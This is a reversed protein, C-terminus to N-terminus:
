LSQVKWRFGKQDTKALMKSRKGDVKLVRFLAILTKLSATHLSKPFPAVYTWLGILTRRALRHSGAAFFASTVTDIAAVDPRIGTAIMDQFTRMAEMPDGQRAYGVILMTYMVRNPRVRAKWAANMVGKAAGFDGAAVYGEMLAAYHYRNPHMGRDLMTQFVDKAAHMDLKTVGEHRIRLTLMARNARIGRQSLSQIMPRVSDTISPPPHIGATPDFPEGMKVSRDAHDRGNPVLRAAGRWGSEMAAHNEERLIARYIIELQGLSPRSIAFLMNRLTRILVAPHAGVSRDLYRLLLEATHDDPQVSCARMLQLIMRATKLGRLRLVGHLCANIIETTPKAQIAAIHPEESEDPKLGFRHGLRALRAQAPVNGECFRTVMRLAAGPRHAAFHLRVLAAAFRADPQIDAHLMHRTLARASTIDRRSAAHNILITYTAVDPYIRTAESVRRLSIVALAEKTATSSGVDHLSSDEPPRLLRSVDLADFTMLGLLSALRETDNADVSLQVLANLLCTATRADANQLATLAQTQVAPDPGLTRYAATVVALTTHEIPFGAREMRQLADMAMPLNQNRIHGSILLHYTRRGPQVGEQEFKETVRELHAYQAQQIYALTQWDLLRGSLHGLHRRAMAVLQLVLKWEGIAAFRLAMREYQDRGIETELQHALALVRLARSPVGGDLVSRALRGAQRGSLFARLFRGGGPLLELQQLLVERPVKWVVASDILALLDHPLRP